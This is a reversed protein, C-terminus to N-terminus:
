IAVGAVYQHAMDIVPRITADEDFVVAHDIGPYFLVSLNGDQSTWREKMDKQDTLYQRVHEAGVIQDDGALVVTVRKGAIDEKWLISETWFLHRSLTRSIDPDRSAFYHTQWQHAGTPVRYVFNYAVSPLHLCFPIPDVFITGSIRPAFQSNRHLHATVITGYSHSIVVVRPLKLDDLIAGFADCTQSSSLPPSTIRNCISLIEVAIIGVDPDQKILQSFFPTYM